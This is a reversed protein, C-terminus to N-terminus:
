CFGQYRACERNEVECEKRDRHWVPSDRRGNSRLSPTTPIHNSWPGRTTCFCDEHEKRSAEDPSGAQNHCTTINGAAWRPPGGGCIGCGNSFDGCRSVKGLKNRNRGQNEIARPKRASIGRAEGQIQTQYGLAYKHSLVLCECSKRIKSM